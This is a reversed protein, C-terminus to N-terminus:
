QKTQTALPLGAFPDATAEPKGAQLAAAVRNREVPALYLLTTNLHRHGLIQQVSRLDGTKDYIRTALTRRLDHIRINRIVGARRKALDWADRVNSEHKPGGLARVIPTAPSHTACLQIAAAIDPPCPISSSGQGKRPFDLARTEPNYAAATLTLAEKHRMGLERTLTIFIRLWLPAHELIAALEDDTCLISRPQPQSRRPVLKALHTHTQEDVFRLFRRLGKSYGYATHTSLVGDWTHLQTYIDAPSLAEPTKYDWSAIIHSAVRSAIDTRHRGASWARALQGLSATGPSKKKVITRADQEPLQPRRSPARVSQPL